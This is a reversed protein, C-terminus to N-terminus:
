KKWLHLPYDGTGNEKTKVLKEISEKVAPADEKYTVGYWTATTTMAGVTTPTGTNARSMGAPWAATTMSAIRRSITSPLAAPICAGRKMYWNQSGSAACWPIAIWPTNM